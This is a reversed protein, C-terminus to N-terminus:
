NGISILGFDPRPLIPNVSRVITETKMTIAPFLVVVLSLLVAKSSLLLSTLKSEFFEPISEKWGNESELTKLSLLPKLDSFYITFYISYPFSKWKDLKSDDLLL